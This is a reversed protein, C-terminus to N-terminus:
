NKILDVPLSIGVDLYGADIALYVAITALLLFLLLWSAFRQSSAKHGGEVIPAFYRRSEVLEQIKDNKKQEDEAEKASNKKAEASTALSDIEATDSTDGTNEDPKEKTEDELETKEEAAATQETATEDKLKEPKEEQETAEVDEAAPTMPEIKIESKKTIDESDKEEPQDDKDEQPKAAVMPDQKIIGSRNTIIPRSTAPSPTEGPKAIDNVQPAGKIDAPEAADPKDNDKTSKKPM